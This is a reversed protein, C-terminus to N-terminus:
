WLFGESDSVNQEEPNQAQAPNETQENQIPEPIVAQSNQAAEPTVAAENQANEPSASNQAANMQKELEPSGERMFSWEANVPNGDSNLVIGELILKGDSEIRVSANKVINNETLDGYWLSTTTTGGLCFSVPSTDSQLAGTFQYSDGSVTLALQGNDGSQFYHDGASFGGTRIWKGELDTYQYKEKPEYIKFFGKLEAVLQKLNESDTNKIDSATLIGISCQSLRYGSRFMVGSVARAYGERDPEGEANYYGTYVSSFKDFVRSRLMRESLIGNEYTYEKESERIRGQEEEKVSRWIYHRKGSEETCILKDTVPYLSPCDDQKSVTQALSDRGESVEFIRFGPDSLILECRGNGDLDSVLIYSAEGILEPLKSAILETQRKSDDDLQGFFDVSHEYVKEHFIDDTSDDGSDAPIETTETVTNKNDPESINENNTGSCASLSLAAVALM